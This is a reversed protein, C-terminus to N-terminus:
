FFDADFLPVGIKKGGKWVLKWEKDRSELLGLAIEAIKEVVVSNLCSSNFSNAQVTQITFFLPMFIFVQARQPLKM